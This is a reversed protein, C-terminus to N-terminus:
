DDMTPATRVGFRVFVWHGRGRLPQEAHEIFRENISRAAPGFDAIFETGAMQFEDRDEDTLEGDVYFAIDLEGDKFDVSVALLSNTVAGLLALQASRLLREQETAM